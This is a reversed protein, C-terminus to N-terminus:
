KGEMEILYKLEKEIRKKGSIGKEFLIDIQSEVWSPNYTEFMKVLEQKRQKINLEKQRRNNGCRVSCYKNIPNNSIFLESCWECHRFPKDLSTKLYIASLLSNFYWGSKNKAPSGSFYSQPSSNRLYENLNTTLLQSSIYIKIVNQIQQESVKQKLAIKKIVKQSDIGEENSLDDLIKDHKEKSLSLNGLGEEYQTYKSIYNQYESAAQIFLHLPERKAAKGRKHPHEFIEDINFKYQNLKFDCQLFKPIEWLGLLGWKNVFELIEENDKLNIRALAVHPCSELHEKKTKPLYELPKEKFPDYYDIGNNAIPSIFIVGNVEILEYQSRFWLSMETFAEV